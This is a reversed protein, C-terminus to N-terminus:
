LPMVFLALGVLDLSFSSPFLGLFTFWEDWIIEREIDTIFQVTHPLMKVQVVNCQRLDGLNPTMKELACITITM